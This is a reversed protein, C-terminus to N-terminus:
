YIHINDSQRTFNHKSTGFLASRSVSFYSLWDLFKESGSCGSLLAALVNVFAVLEVRNWTVHLSKAVKKQLNRKWRRSDTGFSRMGAPKVLWTKHRNGIGGLAGEFASDKRSRETYIRLVGDLVATQKYQLVVVHKPRVSWWLAHLISLKIITQLALM